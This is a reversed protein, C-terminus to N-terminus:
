AGASIRSFRPHVALLLEVVRDSGAHDARFGGIRQPRMHFPLARRRDGVLFLEPQQGAEVVDEHGNRRRDQEEGDAPDTLRDALREPQDDVSVAGRRQRRQRDRRGRPPEREEEGGLAPHRKRRDEQQEAEDATDQRSGGKRDEERDTRVQTSLLGVKAPIM